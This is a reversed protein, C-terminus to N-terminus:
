KGKGKHFANLMKPSIKKRLALYGPLGKAGKNVVKGRTLTNVNKM